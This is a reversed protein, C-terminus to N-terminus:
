KTAAIVVAETKLMKTKYGRDKFMAEMQSVTIGSWTHWECIITDIKPAVREFEESAFVRCEFGEIDVNLLDIHPIDKFMVEIDVCEVEEFEGNSVADSLSFSTTNGSHYFKTKTNENSLALKQPTVKDLMDNFALMHTLTEFHQESPEFAYIKSAHQYAWLTFIGINAGVEAVVMDKKIYPDYLKEIWTEKIVEPIYDEAFDRFFLGKLKKM